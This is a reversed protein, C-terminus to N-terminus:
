DITQIDLISKYKNIAFGYIFESPKEDGRSLLAVLNGQNDLIPAGSIGKFFTHGPHKFPLKFKYFDGIVNELKLGTIVKLKYDIINKNIEFESFGAFGYELEKTSETNPNLVLETREINELLENKENVIQYYSKINRNISIYSFDLETITDNDLNIAKVCGFLGLKHLKIATKFNSREEILWRDDNQTAHFVSVLLKKNNHRLFCGSAFDIPKRSEDLKKLPVSSLILKNIWDTRDM